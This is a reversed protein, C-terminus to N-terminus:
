AKNRRRLLALAGFGLAAMTAPEPVPNATVVVNDLNIFWPDDRFTFTVDTSASTAISTFEYHLYDSDFPPNTISMVVDSGFAASFFSPDDGDGAFDFSFTYSTGIDTAISQVLTGNGGQEGMWVAWDGDSAFGDLVFTFDPDANLTWGTFDATEFSGNTILNASATAAAFVLVGFCLLSRSVTM